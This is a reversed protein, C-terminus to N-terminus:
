TTAFLSDLSERTTRATLGLRTLHDATPVHELTVLGLVNESSIPLRIGLAETLRLAAVVPKHPVSVLRVNKGLRRAIELVLNRIEIGEPEGVAITGTIDREIARSFAECIDDIHITQVIQRGGDFVPVIRAREIEGRMRNFLGGDTAMVLGSRVVLDRAPDMTQELKYKSMGYYSRAKAHASMTSIFVFRRVEGSRAAELVRLTGDENIRRGTKIGLFRTMYAAHIVVDAGRFAETDLVDPLDCRCFRIGDPDFPYKESPQVLARVEWGLRKFHECLHSGILGTAGTIAIAGHHKAMM